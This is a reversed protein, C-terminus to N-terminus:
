RPVPQLAAATQLFTKGTESGTATVSLWSPVGAVSLIAGNYTVGVTQPTPTAGINASFTVAPTSTSIALSSPAVTYTVPLDVTKVVSGDTKGTVFRVSTTRTGVTTTDTVGLAFDVSNQSVSGQQVVNLWSPQPVGPAYGVIVGDGVFSVHVVTAAPPTDGETANISVSTPSISIEYNPQGGGGGCGALLTLAVVAVFLGQIARMSTGGCVYTRIEM